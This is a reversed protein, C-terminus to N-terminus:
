GEYYWAKKEGYVYVVSDSLIVGAPVVLTSNTM